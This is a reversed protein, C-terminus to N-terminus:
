HRRYTSAPPAAASLPPLKETPRIAGRPARRPLALFISGAASSAQRPLTERAKTRCRSYSVLKGLGVCDGHPEAVIDRAGPHDARPTAISSAPRNLLVSSSCTILTNPLI